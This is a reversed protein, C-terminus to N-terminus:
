CISVNQRFRSVNNQYLFVTEVIALPGGGDVVGGQRQQFKHIYNIQM